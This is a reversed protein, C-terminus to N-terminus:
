RVVTVRVYDGRSGRGYIRVFVTAGGRVLNRAAQPDISGNMVMREMIGRNEISGFFSDWEDGRQSIGYRHYNARDQRLVQWPETLRDGKSNYLDDQGIYAVYSGVIEQAFAASGFFLAAVLPLAKLISM